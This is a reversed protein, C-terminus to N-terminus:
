QKLNNFDDVLKKGAESLPNIKNEEMHKYVENLNQFTSNDGGQDGGGRGESQIWKKNVALETLYDKPSIPKEMKDKLITDGKKVVLVDNDYEFKATTKAVTMFDKVDIGNLGEPIYDTLDGNIRYDKLQGRLNDNEQTKLGLDTEYQKQLNSLSTNLEEVKKNPEIKADAIIKAQIADLITKRDKGEIELSFDKKIDKMAHDYGITNGEKKGDNFRSEKLTNLEDDSVFSGDILELSTKEESEIAKQLVEAGGKVFKALENLNEIM